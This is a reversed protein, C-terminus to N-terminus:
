FIPWCSIQIQINKKHNSHWFWLIEFTKKYCIFLCKCLTPWFFLQWLLGSWSTPRIQQVVHQSVHYKIKHIAFKVKRGVSESGLIIFSALVVYKCPGGLIDSFIVKSSLQLRFHIFILLAIWFLTQKWDEMPHFKQWKVIIIHHIM